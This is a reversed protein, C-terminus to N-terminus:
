VGHNGFDVFVATTFCRHLPVASLALVAVVVLSVLITALLALAAASRRPLATTSGSGSAIAATGVIRVLHHRLDLVGPEVDRIQVLGDPAPVDLVEEGLIAAELVDPKGRIRRDVGEDDEFRAPIGGLRQLLEARTLDPVASDANRGSERATPGVAFTTRGRTGSATSSVTSRSSTRTSAATRTATTRRSTATSAAALFRLHLTNVM